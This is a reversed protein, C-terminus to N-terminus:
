GGRRGLEFQEFANCHSAHGDLIRLFKGSSKKSYLVESVIESFADFEYLLVKTEHV